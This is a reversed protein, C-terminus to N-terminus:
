FAFKLVLASVMLSVAALWSGAIRLPIRGTLRVIGRAALGIALVIAGGTIATTAVVEALARWDGGEQAAVVGAGLGLVAFGLARVPAPLPRDLLVALGAVTGAVYPAAWAFFPTVEAAFVAAGALMGVTLAAIAERWGARGQGAFMLGAAVFVLMEEFVFVPHLLLSAHGTVGPVADHALAPAGFGAALVIGLGLGERRM